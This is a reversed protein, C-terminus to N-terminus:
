PLVVWLFFLWPGIMAVAAALTLLCDLMSMPQDQDDFLEIPPPTKTPRTM